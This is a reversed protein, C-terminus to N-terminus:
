TQGVQDRCSSGFAVAKKKKVRLFIVKNNTVLGMADIM